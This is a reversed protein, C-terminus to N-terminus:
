FCRFVRHAKWEDSLGRVNDIMVYLTTPLAIAIAIVALTMGNSLPNLLLRGLATLATQAHRMAWISIFNSRENRKASKM